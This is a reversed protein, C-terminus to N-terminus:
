SAYGFWERRIYDRRQYSNWDPHDKKLQNNTESLFELDFDTATKIKRYSINEYEKLNNEYYKIRAELTNIMGKDEAKIALELLKKDNEYTKREEQLKHLIHIAQDSSYKYIQSQILDRKFNPLKIESRKLQPNAKAFEKLAKSKVSFYEKFKFMKADYPNLGKDELKKSLEKYRRAYDFYEKRRRAYNYRKRSSYKPM